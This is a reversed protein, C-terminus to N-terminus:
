VAVTAIVTVGVICGVLLMTAIAAPVPMGAWQSASRVRAMLGGGSRYARPPAERDARAALEVAQIFAWARNTGLSLGIMGNSM